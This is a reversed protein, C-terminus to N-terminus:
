RQILLIATLTLLFLNLTRVSLVSLTSSKVPGKTPVIENPNKTTKVEERDLIYFVSFLKIRHISYKKHEKPLKFRFM